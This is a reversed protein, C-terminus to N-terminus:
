FSFEGLTTPPQFSTCLFFFFKRTDNKTAAIENGTRIEPVRLETINASEKINVTVTFKPVLSGPQCTIAHNYVDIRRMLLEEYTLNFIATSSAEINLTVTFLNSDRARFIISYM